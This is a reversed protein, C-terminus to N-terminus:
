AYADFRLQNYGSKIHGLSVVIDRGMYILNEAATRRNALM